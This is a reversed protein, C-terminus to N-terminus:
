SKLDAPKQDPKLISTIKEIPSADSAQGQLLRLPDSGLISITVLALKNLATGADTEAIGGLHEMHDRYGAFAMSTAEKFAYDEKLRLVNGYQIASFWGLWIMPSALPIRYLLYAWVDTSGTTPLGSKIHWAFAILAGVSALFAFAWGGQSRGFRTRQQNFAAALGASTARPLLDDILKQQTTTKSILDQLQKSQGQLKTQLEGNQKELNALGTKATEIDTSASEIAELHTAATAAQGELSAMFTQIKKVDGAAQEVQTAVGEAVEEAKSLIERKNDLEKQATNMLALHQGLEGGLDAVIRHGEAKESFTCAATIPAVCQVLQTVFAAFQGAPDGKLNQAQQSLKKLSAALQLRIIPYIPRFGHPARVKSAWHILTQVIENIQEVSCGPVVSQVIDPNGNLVPMTSDWSEALIKLEQKLDSM